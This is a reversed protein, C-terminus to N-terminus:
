YNTPPGKNRDEEPLHKKWSPEIVNQYGRYEEDFNRSPWMPQDSYKWSNPKHFTSKADKNIPDSYPVENDYMGYKLLRSSVQGFGFGSDMALKYTFAIFGSFFAMRFGSPFSRNFVGWIIGAPIADAFYMWKQNKEASMMNMVEHTAAFSTTMGIWPTCMYAWRGFLQKRPLTEKLSAIDFLYHTTGCKLGFIGWKQLNRALGVEEFEIAQKKMVPQTFTTLHMDSVGFKLHTEWLTPPRWPNPHESKANLNKFALKGGNPAYWEKDLPLSSM